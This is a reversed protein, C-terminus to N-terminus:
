DAPSVGGLPDRELEARARELGLSEAVLWPAADLLSRGAAEAQALEANAGLAGFCQIAASVVEASSRNDALLKRALSILDTRKARRIAFVTEGPHSVALPGPDYGATLYTQLARGRWYFEALAEVVVGPGVRDMLEADSALLQFYHPHSDLEARAALLARAKGDLPHHLYFRWGALRRQLRKSDVCALALARSREGTLRWLLRRLLRDAEQAAPGPQANDTRLRDLVSALQDQESDGWDQLRRQIEKLIPERREKPLGRALADLLQRDSVSRMRAERLSWLLWRYQESRGIEEALPQSDM